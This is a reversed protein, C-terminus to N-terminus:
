PGHFRISRKVMADVNEDEAAALERRRQADKEFRENRQEETEPNLKRRMPGGCSSITNRHDEPAGSERLYVSVRAHPSHGSEVWLLQDVYSPSRWVSRPDSHRPRKM